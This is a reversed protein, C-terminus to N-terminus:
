AKRATTYFVKDPNTKMEDPNEKKLESLYEAFEGEPKVLDGFIRAGASCTEVCAPELGKALRTICFDCKDAKNDNDPDLFRAEYPCADVCEGCGVCHTWDVVVIGNDLQFTADYACASICPADDCHRCLAPEYARWAAPFSGHNKQTIKTNFFGHPTQNQEKCAIVCSQCGMCRNVDIILAPKTKEKEKGKETVGAAVALTSTAGLGLLVLGTRKLYSRRGEM